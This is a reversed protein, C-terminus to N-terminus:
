TWDESRFVYGDDKELEPEALFAICCMCHALHHLGTEPDNRQGRWWAFLHRLAAAFYRRRPQDVFRWNHATYKRVGYTLVRVYEDLIRPQVLDWRM